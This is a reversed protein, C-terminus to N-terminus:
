ALDALERMRDALRRRLPPGPAAAAVDLM